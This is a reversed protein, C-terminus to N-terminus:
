QGILAKVQHHFHRFSESRQELWDVDFDTLLEKIKEIRKEGSKIDGYIAQKADNRLLPELLSRKGPEEHKRKIYWFWHEICQVPLMLVVPHHNQCISAFQERRDLITPHHATDIDRGVFLVDLGFKAKQLLAEPLRADVQDRNQVKVRWRFEENELFTSPQIQELYYALFTRQAIDEGFFGYTILQSM